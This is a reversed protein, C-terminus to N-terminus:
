PLMARCFQFPKRWECSAGDSVAAIVHDALKLADAFMGFAIEGQGVAAQHEEIAQEGEVMQPM